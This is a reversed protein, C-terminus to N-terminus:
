LKTILIGTVTGSIGIIFYNVIKKRKEKKVRNQLDTLDNQIEGILKDNEAIRTFSYNLAQNSALLMKQNLRESEKSNILLENIIRSNKEISNQYATIIDTCDIDYNLLERLDEYFKYRGPNVLYISDSKFYIQSGRTIMLPKEVSFQYIAPVTDIRQADSIISVLILISFILPKM